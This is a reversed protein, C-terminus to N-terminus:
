SGLVVAPMLLYADPPERTAQTTTLSRGVGWCFAAGEELQSKIEQAREQGVTAIDDSLCRASHGSLSAAGSPEFM